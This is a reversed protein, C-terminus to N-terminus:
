RWNASVIASEISNEANKASEQVGESQAVSSRASCMFALMMKLANLRAKSPVRM